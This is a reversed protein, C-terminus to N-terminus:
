AADSAAYPEDELLALQGGDLDSLQSRLSTITARLERQAQALSHQLTYCDALLTWGEDPDEIALEPSAVFRLRDILVGLDAPRHRESKLRLNEERLLTMELIADTAPLASSMGNAVLGRGNRRLSMKALWQRRGAQAAPLAASPTARAVDQQAPGLAVVDAGPIVTAAQEGDGVAGARFQVTVPAGDGRDDQTMPERAIQM